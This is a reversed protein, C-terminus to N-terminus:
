GLTKKKLGRTKKELGVHNKEELGVHNKKKEFWTNKLWTYQERKL